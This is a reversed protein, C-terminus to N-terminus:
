TLPSCKGQSWQTLPLPNCIHNLDRVGEGLLRLVSPIQMSAADKSLGRTEVASNFLYDAM